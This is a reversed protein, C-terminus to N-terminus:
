WVVVDCLTASAGSHTLRLLREEAAGGVVVRFVEPASTRGNVVLFGVAPRGLGHSLDRTQGATFAEDLLTRADAPIPQKLVAAAVDSRRRAEEQQQRSGTHITTTSPRTM